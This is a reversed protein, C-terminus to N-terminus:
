LEDALDDRSLIRTLWWSRRSRFPHRDGFEEVLVVLAVHDRLSQSADSRDAAADDRDLVREARPRNRRQFSSVRDLVEFPLVTLRSRNGGDIARKADEAMRDVPSATARRRDEGSRREM